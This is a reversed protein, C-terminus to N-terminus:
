DSLLSVRIENEINILWGDFRYYTAIQVLVEALRKVSKEDTLVEECIKAGDEWETM